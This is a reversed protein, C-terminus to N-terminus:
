LPLEGRRIAFKYREKRRYYRDLAEKRDKIRHDTNRLWRQRRKRNTEKETM